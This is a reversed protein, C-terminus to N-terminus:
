GSLPIFLLQKEGGLNRSRHGKGTTDEALIVSGPGARRTDGDSTEYESEGELCVVFQRRPATHWDSGRQEAPIRLFRVYTAAMEASLDVEPWGARLRGSQTEVEVDEFHSEGDADVYIRIYKM